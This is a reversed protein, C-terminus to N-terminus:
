GQLIGRAAEQKVCVYGGCEREVNVGGGVPEERVAVVGGVSVGM